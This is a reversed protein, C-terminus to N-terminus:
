DDEQQKNKKTLFEIKCRPIVINANIKNNKGKMGNIKNKQNNKKQDNQKIIHSNFNEQDIEFITHISAFNNVHKSDTHTLEGTVSLNKKSHMLCPALTM